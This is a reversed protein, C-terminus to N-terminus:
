FNSIRKFTRNWWNRFKSCKKNEIKSLQSSITKDDEVCSGHAFSDGILVYDVKQSWNENNNRFGYKDSKYFVDKEDEDCLFTDINSVSSIPLIEVGNIEVIETNTQFPYINNNIFKKYKIARLKLDVINHNFNSNFRYAFFNRYFLFCIDDIINIFNCKKLKKM